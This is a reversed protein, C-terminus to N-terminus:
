TLAIGRYDKVTPANHINPSLLEIKIAFKRYGSFTGGLSTYEIVDTSQNKNAAPVVYKYERYDELNASSSYTNVGQTLELEIWDVADFTTSDQAHLPRIYVKIDTGNPRYGTLYLEMDEADLDAALEVTKSIYKSTTASSDTIKYQYALASSLELDVIPTSTSNSRNSMQVVIDFPKTGALNNSKSYLTVGKATFTNNDGFKMPLVYNDLPDSANNFLGTMSTTTVSDNSRMIMPQIYSLNIDNVSGITATTGSTFGIITDGASFKKATTTASSQKLHMESRNFKNYHSVIGATISTGTASAATFTCPKTLTMETASDISAIRFIESNGGSEILIYDGASYDASFDNGSTTVVNTNIVVSVTYGAANEKYVIEEQNFRGDWDSLTFFEHDDNTLTVTGSSANFDHRYITFKIDEDQYSKWAKNNTSTFLVGDGWDQVVAQGKTEGPTIDVGGVKSTFHLYGPDSADPMIVIAYEKEVDMRVPATFDVTTALSADDSVNVQDPTLHIKSFPLIEGTPYGNLVERLTITVGNVESKRKFYLDVKSIYVANAGRGMGKKIFFTQALPDNRTTTVRTGVNRTTAERDVEFEPMRTSLTNKEVTINYAHYTVEAKSTASSEINAFSNVDAVTLVRDGVFFTGEPLKFVARLVGNSDTTVTAGSVGIKQMERPHDVTTGNWIHQDVSVGDFFFYHVTDPRLGTIYVNIDRSRMYPQFDYNSVFDGVDANGANVVLRNITGQELLQTTTTTTRRRFFGFFGGTRGTTTTTEGDIINGSWDVGTMPFLENLEQFASAIDLNIPSPNETVSPLMDHDPSLQIQGNYKWFNSACNRYNTAYPQGLLKVHANRNLTAIEANNTSPFLSANSSSKYKLDLPFTNLAPTLISKDFHIAAKYNPDDLNAVKADNFPDVIYGNKFRTLGNEDLILMNETQQELQNLSVYYEMKEIRQELKEIDRMTYNKTGRPTVIVACQPKSQESAEKPTLAPYGPIVIESVVLEDPSVKPSVPNEAEEGKILSLVGYSNMTIADIRSLYFELDGVANSNLPPIVYDTRTFQNTYAGVATTVTGASSANDDYDVAADKDAYPRFDFSERLNYVVGNTGRYTGIDSSRIKDVPLTASTDDVPYSNITFFYKGTSSNIEFTEVQVTLVGDAPQPRGPIYEIYSIDYFHDNQNNNLKFSDTYRTGSADYIDLVKYVDPFGLSYKATASTYNIKLYPKKVVKSYPTPATAVRNNFYVTAVPDSDAGLNITLISNSLSTSWSDVPIFTNSADVVVLDSQDVGFDWGSGTLTITRAGVVNADTVVRQPIVLDTTSKLYPTGTNFILPAKKVDKLTSNSAIQINGATGIVRTVDSFSETVTSNSNMKINFLYLKTPTINKVVATGLLNLSEDRLEVPDYDLSVTGSIDVIDVYSGYDITTAQNQQIATNSVQEITFDVKGSNEVRYGKVYASGKGVLATLQNNRRDFDMKFRDVIYNGSEEYTRRAMEEAISNFQSVDRLSVASGNQYRILTFFNPDIDAVATSKAVLVPTLKLRDAGPANENSSGNANDYLSNDQLPSVLSETVEYGVSIDDPQDTYKSVILIQDNAFLFHGKQFIVGSAAQIGFSKGTAPTQLTVDINAINTETSYLTSGNYKYRNIRLNEGPIFQKYSSAENTTLYNIFFTNLNPPRTEFGRTAFIISAKLGSQIGELEYVVDIDTEVGSIIDTDAGSIYSEVDFGSKDVLKVFQLGSLDTFTCGKIISGEQYINDGFQEIQNQLITQLQTLERAQVAYAPKFLIKYFQKELDFDDFYPAINLDTNIPM